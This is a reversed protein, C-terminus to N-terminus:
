CAHWVCARACTIAHSLAHRTRAKIIKGPMPSTVTGAVTAASGTRAWARPIPRTFEYCHGGVWLTLVQVDARRTEHGWGTRAQGPSLMASCNRPGLEARSFLGSCAPGRVVRAQIWGLGVQEDAASHASIDARLLQGDVEAQVSAGDEALRAGLATLAAGAAVAGEAARQVNAHM